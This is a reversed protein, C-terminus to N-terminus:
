LNETKFVQLVYKDVNQVTLYATDLLERCFHIKQVYEDENIKKRPADNKRRLNREFSSQIKETTERQIKLHKYM